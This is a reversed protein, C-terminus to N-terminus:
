STNLATVDAQDDSMEDETEFMDYNLELEVTIKLKSM